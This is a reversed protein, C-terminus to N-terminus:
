GRRGAGGRRTALAFGILVAFGLALTLPLGAPGLIDMAAGAAVPGTLSGLEYIMVFAAMAGAMRGSRFREGLLSMAVTYLGLIVGGWLFLLPWLFAGELVVPLALAGALGAAAGAALMTERGLRDALWGIPVQLVMSGALFVSLMLVATDQGLGLRVGYVPLLAFVVIHTFGVLLAVAMLAPAWRAAAILAAPAEAPVPPAGGGAFLLPVAAAAILGAGTVFPVAGDIGTLGILLPGCALGAALVTVYAGVVRGRNRSDAVTIIWTESVVWHIANGLGLVFRLVFWAGLSPLLPMMLLAAVAVAIGLFLAPLTGLHGMLRPLLPAVVLMAFSSTASNLGIMTVSHGDRELLLAILPMTFGLSLGVAAASAIVAVMGRRRAAATVRTVTM